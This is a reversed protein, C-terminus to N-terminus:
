KTASILFTWANARYNGNLGEASTAVIRQDYTTWAFAVDLWDLGAGVTLVNRKSDPLFAGVTEDPQPTEDYAYGVRLQPGTPLKYRAGLRYSMADAFDLGYVTDLTPNAPFRLALERMGSWGTRHVDLEVLISKAPSWAVGATAQDPFEVASSLALDQDFPLSARLLADFQANGTSIQGLRGVGLYNTQIASRYALGWSLNPRLRHLVGASWGFAAEYDTNMALGAVDIQGGGFPNQSAVRRSVTLKSSRYVAGIGVGLNPTVKLGLTPALDYAVIESETALRRGAFTGANAWETHLRFPSFAGMGIVMREGFPLTLFAHPLKALPTKQDGTTGTGIGPPLGQYLSENFAALAFGATVAKKKELLALGGPNYFVASPDNAQAVFAGAFGAPKAAQDFLEFGAGLAAPASGLLLCLLGLARSRAPRELAQRIATAM